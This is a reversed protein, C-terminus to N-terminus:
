GAARFGIDEYVTSAFGFAGFNALTEKVAVNGPIQYVPVSHVEDWILEDIRNGLEITKEADFSATAEDFLRDLEDSGVRAYNQQIDLGGDPGPKPKAYISKSSSVPFVTGGWSFLVLDFNGPTVYKEFFDDGPVLELRVDIGVEAVMTRILEAIQKGITSQTPLVLRLDLERGDKVRVKGGTPLAWGAGDLLGRAAEVDYSLPGSNDRYGKQNTMFIHNGLPTPAVGLPGLLARAITARDIGRTLARRVNVDSLNESTGNITLHNFNPAAAQRIEVGDIGQAIRLKTVDSGTGAFDVEGNALSEVQADQDIARFVIKDLRARRGWWKENRVLTIAKATEDLGGFRFPGASTPVKGRWGDNFVAPDRNTAAPFLPSFLGRWDAYPAKFTVVVEREDAGKAVSDIKDYGQTSVVKFEQDTGNLARWQAEFDAVTIATGDDWAAKRNIRYTVVQKPETATLDASTAYETKLVPEAAADFDFVSPMLAGMVSANDGLSGDLEHQNFNPPIETLPWRLTGGEALEAPDTAGIDNGASPAPKTDAQDDGGDGGGSSCSAALLTTLALLALSRGPRFRLIM